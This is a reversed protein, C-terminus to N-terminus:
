SEPLVSRRAQLLGARDRLRARRSDHPRAQRREIFGQGQLKGDLEVKVFPRGTNVENFVKTVGPTQMVLANVDVGAFPSGQTQAPAQATAAGLLAVLAISRISRTFV